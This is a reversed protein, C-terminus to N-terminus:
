SLFYYCIAALGSRQYIRIVPVYLATSSFDSKLIYKKVSKKVPSTIQDRGPLWAGVSVFALASWSPGPATQFLCHTERREGTLPACRISVGGVPAFEKAYRKFLKSIHLKGNEIRINKPDNIYRNAATTLQRQPMFNVRCKGMKQLVAYVEIMMFCYEM